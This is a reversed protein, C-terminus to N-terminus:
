PSRRPPRLEPSGFALPRERTLTEPINVDVDVYRICPQPASHRAEGHWPGSRLRLDTVRALDFCRWEGGPPLRTTSEGGFQFVLVAEREDKNYGLITPCAERHRGGYSCIIQQRTRIAEWFSRYVASPERGGDARRKSRRREALQVVVKRNEGLNPKQGTVRAKAFEYAAVAASSPGDWLEATLPEVRLVRVNPDHPGDWWADDTKKWIEAAKAPDRLVHARGTLSLYAKAKADVFVLGVDQAAEIEDDKRSRLDTVFWILSAARDPRAELPRARLEGAFRTTLMCVGVKEIIEWVCEISDQRSM